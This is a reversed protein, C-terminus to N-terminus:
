DWAGQFVMELDYGDEVANKPTVAFSELGCWAGLCNCHCYEPCKWFLCNTRLAYNM